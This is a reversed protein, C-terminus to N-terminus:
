FDFKGKTWYGESLKIKKDEIKKEGVLNIYSAGRGYNADSSHITYKEGLLSESNVVFIVIIFVIGLFVVIKLSRRLKSQKKNKTKM